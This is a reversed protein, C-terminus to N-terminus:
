EWPTSILCRPLTDAVLDEYTCMGQVDATLADIDIEIVGDLGTVDLGIISAADRPRFLNSTKKALRVRDGAPIREFSARLRDVANHHTQWGKM